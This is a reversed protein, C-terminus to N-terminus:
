DALKIQALKRIAPLDTARHVTLRVGTGEPFKPASALAQEAAKPLHAERAALIAKDSFTFAVRFCDHCPSMFVVNRGKKKLRLSWGYKNAYIAKWEQTLKGADATVEEILENWLPAASGLAADVEAHSPETTKGIFANPTNM